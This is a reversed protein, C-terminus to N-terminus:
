RASSETIRPHLKLRKVISELEKTAFGNGVLIEGNMLILACSYESRHDTSERGGTKSRLGELQIFYGYHNLYTKSPSSPQLRLCSVCNPEWNKIGHSLNENNLESALQEALGMALDLSIPPDWMQERDWTPLRDFYPQPVARVLKHHDSTIFIKVEVAKKALLALNLFVGIVAVSLLLHSVRFKMLM